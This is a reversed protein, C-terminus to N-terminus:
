HGGCALSADVSKIASSLVQLDSTLSRLQITRDRATTARIAVSLQQEAPQFHSNRAHRKVAAHNATHRFQHM